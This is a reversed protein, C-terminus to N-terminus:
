DTFIHVSNKSNKLFKNKVPVINNLVYENKQIPEICQSNTKGPKIEPGVRLKPNDQKSFFM